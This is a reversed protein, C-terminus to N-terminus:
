KLFDFSVSKALGANFDPGSLGAGSSFSSPMGSSGGLFNLGTNFNWPVSSEFSSGSGRGLLSGALGSLGEWPPKRESQSPQLAGIKEAVKKNEKGKAISGFILGKVRQQDNLYERFPHIASGAFRQPAGGQRATSLDYLNDSSGYV